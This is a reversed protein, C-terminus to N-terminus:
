CRATTQGIKVTKKDVPVAVGPYRTHGLAAIAERRVYNSAGIEENTANDPLNPKATVFDILAAICKAERDKKKMPTGNEGYGLAFLQRLGRFAAFKVGDNEKPDKIVEALADASEECGTDALKSLIMVANIRAAPRRNKSVEQLCKVFRKDFEEKFQLLNPSPRGVRPDVIQDLAEQYISHLSKAAAKASDHYESHTLRYAYWQARRDTNAQQDRSRSNERCSQFLKM